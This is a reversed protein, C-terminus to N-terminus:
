LRSPGVILREGENEEGVGSDGDFFEASKEAEGGRGKRRRQRARAREGRWRNFRAEAEVGKRTTM